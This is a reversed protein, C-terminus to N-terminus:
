ICVGNNCQKNGNCAISCSGCHAKTTLLNTECGNSTVADCNGWNAACASIKCTGTACTSTANAPACVAGCLGCNSPTNLPVECGDAASANCNGWGASCSGIQCSGNSCTPTANPFSCVTGCGGCNANDASTHIECGNGLAGDCNSYGANCTISCVGLACSALGNNGNCANGCTGCDSLSTQTDVECGDAASANCNTWTGDCTGVACNGANCAPTANPTTCVNGCTGCSTVSSQLNQECGDASNSNCDQFGANCTFGCQSSACTGTSNAPPQCVNSCVGCHAPDTTTNVECGDSMDLNCDQYGIVCAPASCTGGVCTATMNPLTTCPANCAGCNLPDSNIDSECGNAPNLDCDTWGDNCALLSCAADDCGADANALGCPSCFPDGCGFQPNDLPVCINGCAKGGAECEVLPETVVDKPADAELKADGDLAADGDMAVDAELKADADQGPGSEADNGAQDVSADADPNADEGASADTQKIGGGGMLEEHSPKMLSCAACLCAAVALGSVLIEGRKSM